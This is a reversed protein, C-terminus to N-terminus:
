SLQFEIANETAQRQVFLESSARDLTGQSYTWGKIEDGDLMHLPRETARSVSTAFINDM